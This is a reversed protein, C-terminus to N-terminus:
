KTKLAKRIMDEAEMLDDELGWTIGADDEQVVLAINEIIEKLRLLELKSLAEL